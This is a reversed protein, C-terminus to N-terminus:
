FGSVLRVGACGDSKAWAELERVLRRGVGKGRYEELVGLALINKLPPAYTCDYDSGHIYGAVRGQIEAVFIRINAKDLIQALRNATQGYDYGFAKLNIQRIGEADDLTAPRIRAEM